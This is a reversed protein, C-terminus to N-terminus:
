SGSYGFFPQFPTSTVFNYFHKDTFFLIGLLLYGQMAHVLLKWTFIKAVVFFVFTGIVLSFMMVDEHFIDVKVLQTPTSVFWLVISVILLIVPM